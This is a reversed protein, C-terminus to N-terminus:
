EKVFIGFGGEGSLGVLEGERPLELDACGWVAGGIRQSWYCVAYEGPQATIRFDGDGEIPTVAGGLESVDPESLQVVLGAWEQPDALPEAGTLEWFPGDM